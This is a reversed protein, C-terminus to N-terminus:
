WFVFAGIGKVCSLLKEQEKHLSPLVKDKYFKMFGLMENELIKLEEQFRQVEMHKDVVLRKTRIAVLGFLFVNNRSKRM